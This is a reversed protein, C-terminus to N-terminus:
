GRKDGQLIGTVKRDRRGGEQRRGQFGKRDVKGRGEYIVKRKNVHFGRDTVEGEQGEQKVNKM